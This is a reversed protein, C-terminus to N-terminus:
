LKLEHAVSLRPLRVVRRRCRAVGPLPVRCRRRAHSPHLEGEEDGSTDDDEEGGGCPVDPVGPVGPVGPVKRVGPVFPM